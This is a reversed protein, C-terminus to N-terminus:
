NSGNNLTNLSNNFSRNVGLAAYYYEIGNKTKRLTCSMGQEVTIVCAQHGSDHASILLPVLSTSTTPEVKGDQYVIWTGPSNVIAIISQDRHKNAFEYNSKILKLQDSEVWSIVPRIGKWSTDKLWIRHILNSLPDDCLLYLTDKAFTPQVHDAFQTQANVTNSLVIALIFILKKM